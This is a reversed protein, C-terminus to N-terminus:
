VSVEASGEAARYNVVKKSYDNVDVEDSAIQFQTVRGVVQGLNSALEDVVINNEGQVEFAFFFEGDIVAPFKFEKTSFHMGIHPQDLVRVVKGIMTRAFSFTLEEETTDKAVFDSDSIPFSVYVTPAGSPSAFAFYVIEEGVKTYPVLHIAAIRYGKQIDEPKVLELYDFIANDIEYGGTIPDEKFALDTVKKRTEDNDKIILVNEM